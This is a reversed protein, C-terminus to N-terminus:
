ASRRRVFSKALTREEDNMCAYAAVAYVIVFLTVHLLLSAVANGLELHGIASSVLCVVPIGRAAMAVERWFRAVDLGIACSYYVNMVFGSGVVLVIASSLAAGVVGLSGTLAFTLPVNAVASAVYVVSRFAYKDLVQLITLALKQLIDVYYASMMLIAVWYAAEYGSGVWLGIFEMGFFIFGTLIATIIFFALRGTRIWVDSLLRRSDEKKAIDSLHPMFVSSLVTGLSSYCSYIQYGVSYVAVASTGLMGGIVLQDTKAFIIDAIMAVAITVSFALLPKVSTWDNQHVIPRIGIKEKVYARKCVWMVASVVFQVATVVAAYPYGQILVLVLVPQAVVSALDMAKLFAFREYASIAVTTIYNLMNMVINALLVALLVVGEQMEPESLTPSYVVVFFGVVLFGLAVLLLAARRYLMRALGLTNEMGETDNNAKSVCFFRLASSTLMSEIITMYAAISGVLQYLGYESQGIGRLLLPTYALMVLTQVIIYIYGLVVGAKRQSM